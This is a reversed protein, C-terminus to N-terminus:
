NWSSVALSALPFPPGVTVAVVEVVAAVAVAVAVKVRVQQVEGLFALFVGASFRCRLAVM